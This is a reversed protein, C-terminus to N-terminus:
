KLVSKDISEHGSSDILDITHLQIDLRKADFEDVHDDPTQPMAMLHKIFSGQAFEIRKAQRISELVDAVFATMESDMNKAKTANPILFRNYNWNIKFAIVQHVISIKLENFLM